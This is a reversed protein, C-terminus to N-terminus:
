AKLTSGLLVGDAWYAGTPGQPLLDWTDGTYAVLDVSRVWSGDISDGPRLQGIRRGDATPHGPSAEIVRGDTVILRVVQHGVPAPTHSVLLAPAPMRQGAADLTWVIMGPRLRTVPVAGDPTAISAGAALCIPCGGRGPFTTPDNKELSITGTRDITGAVHTAGPRGAVYDFSYLDDKAQLNLVALMEAQQLILRENDTTLHDPDIHEHAVIANFLRPDRTRLAAVEQSAEEPSPMRVVPPGCYLPRGIKDILQYKLEPVTLEHGVGPQKVAGCATVVLLFVPIVLRVMLGPTVREARM